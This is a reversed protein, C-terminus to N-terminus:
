RQGATFTYSLSSSNTCTALGADCSANTVRQIVDGNQDYLYIDMTTRPDNKTVSIEVHKFTGLNKSFRFFKTKKDDDDDEEEDDLIIPRVRGGDIIYYGSFGDKVKTTDINSGDSEDREPTTGIIRLEIGGSECSSFGSFAFFSLM